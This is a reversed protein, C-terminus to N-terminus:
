CREKIEYKERVPPDGPKAPQYEVEAVPKADKPITDEYAVMAFTGPGVGPTGVVLVFEGSRGVRMTPRDAFFSVQLPGGFHMVPAAAPSAAFQLPGNLDIPGAGFSVRGGVGGGKVGPVETDCVVSFALAKPNKALVAKVDPRKGLESDAYASLPGCRVAAAKHTRGGTTIDGIDFQYGDGDERPRDTKKTAVKEGPDTLDGNGNRDVYLTDGDLVVWVREKGDPGFALLGYQPTKTRYAPEKQISREFAPPDAAFLLTLLVLSMM